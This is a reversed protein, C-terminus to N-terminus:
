AASPVFEGVVMLQQDVRTIATLVFGPPLLSPRGASPARSPAPAPVFLTLRQVFGGKLLRGGFESAGIVLVTRAGAQGMEALADGLPLASLDGPVRFVAGGHGGPCGERVTGSGAPYVLDHVRRLRRAEAQAAASLEGTPGDEGLQMLLHVMPKGSGLSTLWPGLVLLAESELVHTEVDVGARRLQEAGGEGRSTPDLVAILVRSVGADLLAQHCAPTLGVHNCPELTVAATTGTAREGAAALANVEAHAEGKRLHYGEGVIRGDPAMLVCGVSPNPSSTGLGSASIAIARRMADLEARTPM